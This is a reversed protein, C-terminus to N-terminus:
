GFPETINAVRVSIRVVIELVTTDTASGAFGEWPHATSGMGVDRGLNGM